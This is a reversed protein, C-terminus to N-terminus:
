KKVSLIDSNEDKDIIKKHYVYFMKDKDYERIFYPTYFLRRTRRYCAMM